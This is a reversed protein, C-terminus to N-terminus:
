NYNLESINENNILDDCDYFTYPTLTNTFEKIAIPMSVYCLSTLPVILFLWLTYSKNARLITM